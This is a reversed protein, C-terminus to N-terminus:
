KKDTTKPQPETVTSKEDPPVETTIIEFIENLSPKRIDMDHLYLNEEEIYNLLNVITSATDKPYVIISTGVDIIKQVPLGKLISILMEKNKGPTLNITFNEKLYPKRVEEIPGSCRVRGQHIIAVKNCIKELLNLHHSAIVLTIGQKNVEQLFDMIEVQLIPDLDATPEDLLLIKPKHILSCSIDLRRQMGGSLQEALKKREPYLRTAKLLSKINNITLDRKLGYLQGFHLLNEVVTLKPYFSNHQPAFGFHKKIKQLDRTLNEPGSTVKLYHLAEGCTPEIFGSLLNLLTTKGSGSRGVIGFIDGEEITLSVDELVLNGEFERSVEKLELLKM